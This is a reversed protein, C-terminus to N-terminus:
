RCLTIKTRSGAMSCRVVVDGSAKPQTLQYDRLHSPLQAYLPAATFGMLVAALAGTTLKQYKNM